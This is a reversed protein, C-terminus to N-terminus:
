FNPIIVKEGERAKKYDDLYGLEKAAMYIGQRNCYNNGYMKVFWEDLGNHEQIHKKTRKYFEFTQVGWGTICTLFFGCYASAASCGLLTINNELGGLVIGVAGVVAATSGLATVRNVSATKLIDTLRSM